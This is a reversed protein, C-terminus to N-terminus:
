GWFPHRSAAGHTHHPPNRQLLWALGVLNLIPDKLVELANHM